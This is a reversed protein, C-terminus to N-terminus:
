FKKSNLISNEMKKFVVKEIEEPHLDKWNYIYEAVVTAFEAKFGAEIMKQSIPQFDNDVTCGRMQNPLFVFNGDVHYGYIVLYAKGNYNLSHEFYIGSEDTFDDIYNM